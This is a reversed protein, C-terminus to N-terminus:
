GFSTILQKCYMTISENLHRSLRIFAPKVGFKRQDTAQQLWFMADQHTYTLFFNVGGRVQALQHTTSNEFLEKMNEGTAAWMFRRLALQKEKVLKQAPRSSEQQAREIETLQQVIRGDSMNVEIIENLQYAAEYLNQSLIENPSQKETPKSKIKESLEILDLKDQLERM